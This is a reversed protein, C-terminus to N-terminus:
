QKLNILEDLLDMFMKLDAEQSIGTTILRFCISVPLYEVTKTKFIHGQKTGKDSIFDNLFHEIIKDISRNYSYVDVWIVVDDRRYQVEQSVKVIDKGFVLVNANLSYSSAKEGSSSSWLGYIKQNDWQPEPQLCDRWRGNNCEEKLKKGDAHFRQSSIKQLHHRLSKEALADPSEYILDNIEDPLFFSYRAGNNTLMKEGWITVAFKEAIEVAREYASKSFELLDSGLLDNDVWTLSKTQEVVEQIENEYLPLSIKFVDDAGVFPYKVGVKIEFIKQNTAMTM